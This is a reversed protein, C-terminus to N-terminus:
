FVPTRIEKYGCNEAASLCTAEIYQNKYVESPLVDKPGKIAKTILAM